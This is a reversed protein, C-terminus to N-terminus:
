YPAAIMGFPGIQGWGWGVLEGNWNVFTGNADHRYKRLDGNQMFAYIEGNGTSAVAQPAEWGTGINQGLVVWGFNDDHQYRLLDGNPMIIYLVNHGGSFVQSAVDWDQGIKTGGNTWNFYEDHEYYFLDGNSKICYIEGMQAAFVENCVDWGTGIVTGNAADWGGSASHHYYQLGGQHNVLYLHGGAAAFVKSGQDWGTGMITRVIDFGGSAHRSMLLQGAGDIEYFVNGDFTAEAGTSEAGCEPIGALIGAVQDANGILSLLNQVMNKYDAKGSARDTDLQAKASAPANAFKQNRRNQFHAQAGAKSGGQFVKTRSEIAMMGLEFFASGVDMCMTGTMYSAQPTLAQWIGPTNVAKVLCQTASSAGPLVLNYIVMGAACAAREGPNVIGACPAEQYQAQFDDELAGFIDSGNPVQFLEFLSPAECIFGAGIYAPCQGESTKIGGEIGPIEGVMPLTGHSILGTAWERCLAKANAVQSGYRESLARLGSFFPSWDGSAMPQCTNPSDFTEALNGECSPIFEWVNCPRQGQHGCGSPRGPPAPPPAPAQCRDSVFNEELGSNCSPIYEWVRCPRQGGNGCYGPYASAVAPFMTGVAFVAAAMWRASLTRSVPSKNSQEHNM